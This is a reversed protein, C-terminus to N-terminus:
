VSVGDKRISVSPTYSGATAGGKRVEVRFKYIGWVLVSRRRTASAVFPVSGGVFAETDPAESSADLSPIVRFVMDNGTAGFASEVTVHASEGPALSVWETYHNAATYDADANSTESLAVGLGTLTAKDGWAM